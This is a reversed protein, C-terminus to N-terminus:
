AAVEDATARRDLLQAYAFLVAGLLGGGVVAAWVPGCTLVIAATLATLILVLGVVELVLAM